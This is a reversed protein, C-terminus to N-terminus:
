VFIQYLNFSALLEFSFSASGLLCSHLWPPLFLLSQSLTCTVMALWCKLALIQDLLSIVCLGSQTNLASWSLVTTELPYGCLKAKFNSTCNQFCGTGRGSRSPILCFSFFASLKNETDGVPKRTSDMHALMRTAATSSTDQWEAQLYWQFSQSVTPLM